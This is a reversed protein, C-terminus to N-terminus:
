PDGDKRAAKRKTGAARPRAAAAAPVHATPLRPAHPADAARRRRAAAGAVAPHYYRNVLVDFLM